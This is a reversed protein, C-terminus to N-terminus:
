VNGTSLGKEIQQMGRVLGPMAMDKLIVDMGREISVHAVGAGMLGAGLVAVTRDICVVTTSRCAHGM